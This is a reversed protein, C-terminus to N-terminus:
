VLSILHLAMWTFSGGVTNHLPHSASTATSSMTGPIHADHLTAHNWYSFHSGSLASPGKPSLAFQGHVPLRGLEESYVLLTYLDQPQSQLSQEASPSQQQQMSERVHRSGAITRTGELMLRTPIAPTSQHLVILMKNGNTRYHYVRVRILFHCIALSRSSM